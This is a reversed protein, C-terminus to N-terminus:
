DYWRFFDVLECILKSTCAPPNSGSDGDPNYHADGDADVWCFPLRHKHDEYDEDNDGYDAGYERTAVTHKGTKVNGMKDQVEILFHKSFALFINFLSLVIIAEGRM